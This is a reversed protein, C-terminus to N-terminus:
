REQLKQLILELSRNMNKHYEVENQLVQNQTARLHHITEWMQQHARCNQITAILQITTIALLWVKWAPIHPKKKEKMGAGESIESSSKEKDTIKRVGEKNVQWHADM